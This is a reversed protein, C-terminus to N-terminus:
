DEASEITLLFTFNFNVHLDCTAMINLVWVFVTKLQAKCGLMKRWLFYSCIKPQGSHHSQVSYHTNKAWDWSSLAGPTLTFLSSPVPLLGANLVMHTLDDSVRRNALHIVVAVLCFNVSSAPVKVVLSQDDLSELEFVDWTEFIPFSNAQITTM